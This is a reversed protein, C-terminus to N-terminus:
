GTHRLEVLGRQPIADEGLDPRDATQQQPRLRERAQGVGVGVAKDVCAPLWPTRLTRAVRVALDARSLARPSAM